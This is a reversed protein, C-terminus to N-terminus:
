QGRPAQSGGPGRMGDGDLLAAIRELVGLRKWRLFTRHVTSDDPYADPLRNWPCGTHMHLIVADLVARPDSRRRGVPKPPDYEDLIPKVKVWLDDAVRFVRPKKAARTRSSM